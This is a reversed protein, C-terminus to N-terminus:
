ESSGWGVTQKLNYNRNLADQYIPWYLINENSKALKAIDPNYQELNGLRILAWWIVGEAAFEIFYEHTLAELVGAKTADTYFDDKGYARKALINLSKLAGSYDELYYKAEADMIVAQAYRYYILDCDYINSSSGVTMQPLFKNVWSIDNGASGYPGHGYICDIRSDHNVDKSDQLMKQFSESFDVQQGNIPVPNSLYQTAVEQTLQFFTSYYGGTNGDEYDNNLAFIIEENCKDTRSFVSAYDSLLRDGSIGIENLASQASSLYGAEKGQTSYMWLGYEAKLMEVADPTAYYKDTGLYDIYKEAQAIDSEIQAYVDKASRRSPYTEEQTPSEIPKLVLPVDGWLRVAWFYCYARAFYAQGLAYGSQADTMQIEPTYKLVANAQDIATYLASWCCSSTSSTISNNVVDTMDTVSIDCNHSVGWMYSGVRLEGWWFTSTYRSNFNKRILYYIGNSATTVDNADQWMNSATLKNDQIIKLDDSCSSPVLLIVIITLLINKKMDIHNIM